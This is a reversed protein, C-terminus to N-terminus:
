GAGTGERLGGGGLSTRGYFAIPSNALNPGAGTVIREEVGGRLWISANFSTNPAARLLLVDNTGTGAQTRTGLLRTGNFWDIYVSKPDEYCHRATSGLVAGTDWSKWAFGSTCRSKQGLRNTSVIHNGGTWGGADNAPSGAMPIIEARIVTTFPKLDAPVASQVAKVDDRAVVVFREPDRYVFTVDEAHEGAWQARSAWLGKMKQQAVATSFDYRATAEIKNVEAPAPTQASAPPLSSAVLGAAVVAAAVVKSRIM